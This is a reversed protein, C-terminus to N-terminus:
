DDAETQEIQAKSKIYISIAGLTGVASRILIPLGEHQYIQLQTSLSSIKSIRSFTDLDFVQQVDAATDDPDEDGFTVSRSFVADAVTRFSIQRRRTSVEIAGINSMDKIMKQFDGSNIVVPKGYGEPLEIDLSQIRQIRIYSTTVRTREKPMLEIGLEGQRDSGIFLSITDKKKSAKLMKFFHSNTLGITMQEADGNVRFSSFAMANLSLDILIKKNTDTVKSYLGDPRIDFAGSKINNQLLEALGKIIHGETTRCYFERPATTTTSSSAM